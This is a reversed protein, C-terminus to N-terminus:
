SLCLNTPDNEIFSKPTELCIRPTLIVCSLFFLVKFKEWLSYIFLTNFINLIYSAFTTLIGKALWKLNALSIHGFACSSTSLIDLMGYEDITLLRIYAITHVCSSIARTTPTTLLYILLRPISCQLTTLHINQYQITIALTFNMKCIIIRKMWPYLVYM